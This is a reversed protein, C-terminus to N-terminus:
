WKELDEEDEEIQKLFKDEIEKRWYDKTTDLRGKEIEIKDQHKDIQKNLSEIRKERIKKM